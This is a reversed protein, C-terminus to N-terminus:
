WNVLHPPPPGLRSGEVDHRDIPKWRRGEGYRTTRAHKSGAYLNTNQVLIDFIYDTFFLKFFALPSAQFGAPLCLEFPRGPHTRPLAKFRPNIPVTASSKINTHLLGLYIEDSTLKLLNGPGPVPAPRCVDDDIDGDENLLDQVEM